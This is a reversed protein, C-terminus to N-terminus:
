EGIRLKGLDTTVKGATIYAQYVKVESYFSENLQGALKTIQAAKDLAIGGTRVSEMTQAIFDRLEGTTKIKQEPKSM